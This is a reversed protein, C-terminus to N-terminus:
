KRNVWSLPYTVPHYPQRACDCLHCNSCQNLMFRFPAHCFPTPTTEAATIQGQVGPTMNHSEPGTRSGYRLLCRCYLVMTSRGPTGRWPVHAVQLLDRDGGAVRLASVLEHMYASKDAPMDSDACVSVLKGSDKPPSRLVRICLAHEFSCRQLLWKKEKRKRKGRVMVTFFEIQGM